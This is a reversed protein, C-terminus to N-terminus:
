ECRGEGRFDQSGIEPNQPVLKGERKRPSIGWNKGSYVGESQESTILKKRTGNVSQRKCSKIGWGEPWGEKGSSDVRRFELLSERGYHDWKKKAGLIFNQEEGWLTL